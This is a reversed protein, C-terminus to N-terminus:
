PTDASLGVDAARHSCNPARGDPTGVSYAHALLLTGNIGQDPAQHSPTRMADCQVNRFAQQCQGIRPLFQALVDQRLVPAAQVVPVGPLLLAAILVSTFKM